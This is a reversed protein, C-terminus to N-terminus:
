LNEFQLLPTNNQGMKSKRCWELIDYATSVLFRLNSRMRSCSVSYEVGVRAESWERFLVGVTDKTVSSLSDALFRRNVELGEHFGEVVADVAGDRM